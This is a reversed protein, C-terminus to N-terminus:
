PLALRTKYKSVCLVYLSFTKHNKGAKIEKEDKKKAVSVQALSFLMM